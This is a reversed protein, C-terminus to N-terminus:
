SASRLAAIRQLWGELEAMIAADADGEAVKAQDSDFPADKTLLRDVETLKKSAEDNGPAKALITELVERAQPLHGQKVYLDALTITCFEPSLEVEADALMENGAPSVPLAEVAATAADPPLAATLTKYKELFNQSEASLGSNRCLEGLHLYVRALRSITEDVGRLVGNLRELKGQRLLGQCLVIKADVDEPAHILRMEAMKVAEDPRNEELCAQAAPLDFAKEKNGSEDM